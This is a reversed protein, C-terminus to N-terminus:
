DQKERISLTSDAGEVVRVLAVGEVDILRKRFRVGGFEVREKQRAADDVGVGDAEVLVRNAENAGEELLVLGDGRDAVRRPEEDLGPHRRPPGEGRPRDEGRVDAVRSADPHVLLDADVTMQDGTPLRSVQGGEDGPRHLEERATERIAARRAPDPATRDRSVLHLFGAAFGERGGVRGGPGSWGASR